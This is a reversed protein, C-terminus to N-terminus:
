RDEKQFLFYTFIIASLGHIVIDAYAEQSMLGANMGYIALFLSGAHMIIIGILIANLATKDKVNRSLFSIAAMGLVVIGMFQAIFAGGVDISPIFNRVWEQPALLQSLGGLLAFVANVVLLTSLNLIKKMANVTTM